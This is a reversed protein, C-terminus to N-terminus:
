QRFVVGPSTLTGTQARTWSKKELWALERDRGIPAARAVRPPAAREGIVRYHTIPAEVGKLPSGPM